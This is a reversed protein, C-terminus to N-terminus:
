RVPRWAYDRYRLVQVAANEYRAPAGEADAGDEYIPVIRYRSALGEAFSAPLHEVWARGHANALPVVLRVADYGIYAPLDPLAGYRDVYRDAFDRVDPDAPDVYLGGTVLVELDSLVSPELQDFETWQPMGMVVAERDGRGIQLQSMFSMVLRPNRYVPFVFVTERREDGIFQSAWDLNQLGVDSTSLRWERWPEQTPQLLRHRYQLYRIQQDQAGNPLGVLVVQDADYRDALYGAMGDLHTRLGPNVQVFRAYGDTLDAAASYPALIPLGVSEAATAAARVGQALYPGILAHANRVEEDAVLRQATGADGRSDYVHVTAREGERELRELGLVVGGYYQVAWDSNAPLQRATPAFRDSMFPLAVAITAGNPGVPLDRDRVDGPEPVEIEVGGPLSDPSPVVVGPDKPEDRPAPPQTPAPQPAPTRPTRRSPNCALLLATAAVLLVGFRGLAVRNRKSGSM